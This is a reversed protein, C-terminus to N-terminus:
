PAPCRVQVVRQAHKPNSSRFSLEKIFAATPNAQRADYSPMFNLQIRIYAHDGDQSFNIAKVTTIHLPVHVGLIPVLLAEHGKDVQVLLDRQPPIQTLSTYASTDMVSRGTMAAEDDGNAQVHM